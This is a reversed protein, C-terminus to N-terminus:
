EESQDLLYEVEGIGDKALCTEAWKKSQNNGFAREILEPSDLAKYAYRCYQIGLQSRYM